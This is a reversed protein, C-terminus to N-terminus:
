LVERFLIDFHRDKYMLPVGHSLGCAAIIIDTVPVMFGRQRCSLVLEKAKQWVKRNIELSRIDEIYQKIKKKEQEGKMGNLLELVVVDCWVARDSLILQRLREKIEADGKVRFAEIWVSTDVLVVDERAM